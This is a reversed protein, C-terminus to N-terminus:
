NVKSNDSDELNIYRDVFAAESNKMKSAVAKLVATVRTEVQNVHVEVDNKSFRIIDLKSAMPFIDQVGPMFNDIEEGGYLINVSKIIFVWTTQFTTSM